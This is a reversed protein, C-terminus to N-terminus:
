IGIHALPKQIIKNFLKTSVKLLVNIAFSTTM